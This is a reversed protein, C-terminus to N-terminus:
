KEGLNPIANEGLRIAPSPVTMWHWGRGRPGLTSPPAVVYGGKGRYDLGPWSFGAKNGRGIPLMYFHMGGNATVVIGHTNPIRQAELLRMFPPIGGAAPDIDFVDFAHGTPLGINHDPYRDWWKAVRESDTTADKFGHKTAPEKTKARLPFVPWGWSVYELAVAKFDIPENVIREIEAETLKASEEDGATVCSLWGTALSELLTPKPECCPHVPCDARIVQMLQGCDRCTSYVRVLNDFLVNPHKPDYVVIGEAVAPTSPPTAKIKTVAPKNRFPKCDKCNCGEHHRPRVTVTESTANGHTPVASNTTTKSTTGVGASKKRPLTKPKLRPLTKAAKAARKTM